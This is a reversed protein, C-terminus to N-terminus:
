KVRHKTFHGESGIDSHSYLGRCKLGMRRMKKWKGSRKRCGMEDSRSKKPEPSPQGSGPKGFPNTPCVEANDGNGSRGLIGGERMAQAERRLMKVQRRERRREPWTKRRPAQICCKQKPKNRVQVVQLKECFESVNASLQAIQPHLMFGVREKAEKLRSTGNQLIEEKSDYHCVFPLSLFTGSVMRTQTCEFGYHGHSGCNYCNAHTRKLKLHHVTQQPLVPAGPTITNHYQRWTDPCVDSLHGTMKCRQCQQKWVAPVECASRGHQHRGCIPCHLRPCSRHIHGGTGCLSCTLSKKQYFCQKSVHGARNCMQCMLSQRRSFSSPACWDVGKKDRASLAWAENVSDKMRDTEVEDESQSGDESSTGYSLHLQISSDEEEPGVKGLIMWDEIPGEDEQHEEQLGAGTDLSCDGWHSGSAQPFALLLLPSTDRTWRTRPRDQDRAQREGEDESSSFDGIYYSEDRGGGTDKNIHIM